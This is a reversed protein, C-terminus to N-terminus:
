TTFLETKTPADPSWTIPHDRGVLRVATHAETATFSTHRAIADPKPFDARFHAGRSENRKLASLFMLEAVLAVDDYEAFRSVHMLASVLTEETRTPAMAAAMSKRVVPLLGKTLSQDPHIGSIDRFPVPMRGTVDEAAFRSCVVAELLPNGHLVSAGHFGNCAAEGCAWLGPLSTRGSIETKLGGIHFAAAPRVPLSQTAPDIGRAHCLALFSKLTPDANQTGAAVIKRLDLFVAHGGARREYIARAVYAPDNTHGELKQGQEDHLIADPGYLEFPIAVGSGPTNGLSLAFPHFHVLELDSLAAGARAAVALSRGIATVPSLGDDYLGCTGGSALIVADTDLPIMRSGTDLIVGRVHGDVVVLRRLAAPALITVNPRVHVAALLAAHLAYGSDRAGAAVPIGFRGLTDIVNGMAATICQVTELCALGAARELTRGARASATDDAGLAAAVGSRLAGIGPQEACSVLVCPRNGFHLATMLGAVGAGVIVPQEHLAHPDTGTTM